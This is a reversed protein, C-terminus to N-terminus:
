VLSFCRIHKRRGVPMHPKEEDALPLIVSGSRIGVSPSFHGVDSESNFLIIPICGRRLTISLASLELAPHPHIGLSAARGYCHKEFSGIQPDPDTHFSVQLGHMKLCTALGVTFIGHGKTLQCGERVSGVSVRKRFHRLVIWTALLGCHGDTELLGSPAEWWNPLNLHNSRESCRVFELESRTM